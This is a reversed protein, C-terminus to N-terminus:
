PGRPAAGEWVGGRGPACVARPPHPVRPLGGGGYAHAPRPAPDSTVVLEPGGGVDVVVLQARGRVSAVFALSEGDPALRPEALARTHACMAATIRPRRSAM